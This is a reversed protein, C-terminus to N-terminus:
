QATWGGDMTLSAGTMLRGADSCLFLVLEGLDKTKVFQKAPQKDALLRHQSETISINEKKAINEIQQEILPTLVFGPCIANCTIEAEATELAVVKTLGVLGHKAACYGTKGVSAVLGHVSAINIIRGWNSKKMSPMAEKMTYFAASLNIAIINEWTQDPFDEIPSVHQIGANNILIDVSGFTEITFQIMEKIENSRLMNAPHHAAQVGYGQLEEVIKDIVQKEGFGNIVINAGNKALTRAIDLGIGSTSGTIVANKGEAM